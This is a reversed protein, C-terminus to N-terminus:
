SFYDQENTNDQCTNAVSHTPLLTKTAEKLQRSIAEKQDCDNCVSSHTRYPVGRFAFELPLREQDCATCHFTRRGTICMPCIAMEAGAFQDPIAHPLRSGTWERKDSAARTVWCFTCVLRAPPAADAARKKISRAKRDSKKAEVEAAYRLRAEDIQRQRLEQNVLEDRMAQPDLARQTALRKQETSRAKRADERAKKMEVFRKVQYAEQKTLQRREAKSRKEALLAKQKFDFYKIMEDDQAATGTNSSNSNEGTGVNFSSRSSDATAQSLEVPLSFAFSREDVESTEPPPQETHRAADDDTVCLVPAALPRRSPESPARPRRELFVLGADATPKGNTHHVAAVISLWAERGTSVFGVPDWEFLPQSNVRDLSHRVFHVIAHMVLVRGICCDDGVLLSAAPGGDAAFAMTNPRNRYTDRSYCHGSLGVRWCSRQSKGCWDCGGPTNLFSASAHPYASICAMSRDNDRFLAQILPTSLATMQRTMIRSMPIPPPGDSRMAAVARLVESIDGM